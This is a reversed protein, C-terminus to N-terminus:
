RSFRREAEEMITEESYGMDLLAEVSMEFEDQTLDSTVYRLDSLHTPQPGKLLSHIVNTNKVDAESNLGDDDMELDNASKDRKEMKAITSDYLSYLDPPVLNRRQENSLHPTVRHLQEILITKDTDSSSSEALQSVLQDIIHQKEPPIHNNESVTLNPILRPEDRTPPEMVGINAVKIFNNAKIVYNNFYPELKDSAKIGKPLRGFLSLPAELKPGAQGFYEGNAMAKAVALSKAEDQAILAFKRSSTALSAIWKQWAQPRIKDFIETAGVTRKAGGGGPTKKKSENAIVDYAADFALMLRTRSSESAYVDNIHPLLTLATDAILSARVGTWKKVNKSIDDFLANGGKGTTPKAVGMYDKVVKVKKDVNRRRDNIMDQHQRVVNPNNSKLKPSVMPVITDVAKDTLNKLGKGV